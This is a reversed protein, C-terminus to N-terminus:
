RRMALLMLVGIILVIAFITPIVGITQVGNSVNQQTSISANSYTTNLPISIAGTSCVYLIGPVFVILVALVIFQIIGEVVGSDDLGHKAALERIKPAIDNHIEATKIGMETKLEALSM